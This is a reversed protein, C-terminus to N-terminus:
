MNNDYRVTYLRKKRNRDTTFPSITSSFSVGERSSQVRRGGLLRFSTLVRKVNQKTVRVVGDMPPPSKLSAIIPASRNSKHLREIYLAILRHRTYTYISPFSSCFLLLLM